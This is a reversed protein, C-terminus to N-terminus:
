VEKKLLVEAGVHAGEISLGTVLVQIGLSMLDGAAGGFVVPM